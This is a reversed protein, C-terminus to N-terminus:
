LKILQPLILKVIEKKISSFYGLLGKMKKGEFLKSLPDLHRTSVVKNNQKGVGVYSPPGPHSTAVPNTFLLNSSHRTLCVDMDCFPTVVDLSKSSCLGVAM